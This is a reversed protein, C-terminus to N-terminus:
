SADPAIAFPERDLYSELTGIQPRTAIDIQLGQHFEVMGGQQKLWLLPEFPDPLGYADRVSQPVSEFALAERFWRRELMSLAIGTGEVAASVKADWVEREFTLGFADVLHGDQWLPWFRTLGTAKAWLASRRLHEDVFAFRSMVEAHDYSMRDPTSISKLREFITKLHIAM